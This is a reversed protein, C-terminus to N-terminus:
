WCPSLSCRPNKVLVTQTCAWSPLSHVCGARLQITDSARHNAATLQLGAWVGKNLLGAPFRSQGALWDSPLSLLGLSASSRCKCYFLKHHDPSSQHVASALCSRRWCLCRSRRGPGGSHHLGFTVKQKQSQKKEKGRMSAQQLFSATSWPFRTMLVQSLHLGREKCPGSGLLSSVSGSSLRRIWTPGALSGKSLDRRRQREQEQRSLPSHFRSLKGSHM